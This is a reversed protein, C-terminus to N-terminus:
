HNGRGRAIGSFVCAEGVDQAKPLQKLAANQRAFEQLFSDFDNGGSPSAPDALATELGPTQIMVPCIAVVRINKHGLEKALSQTLGNKLKIKIRRICIIPAGESGAISSINIITGGAPMNSAATKCGWFATKLNVSLM